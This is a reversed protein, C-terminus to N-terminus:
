IEGGAGDAGDIKALIKYKQNVINKIDEKRALVDEPFLSVPVCGKSLKDVAKELEYDNERGYICVSKAYEEGLRLWTSFKPEAEELTAAGSKSDIVLTGLATDLGHGKEVIFERDTIKSLKNQIDSPNYSHHFRGYEDFNDPTFLETAFEEDNKYFLAKVDNDTMELAKKWNLLGKKVLGEVAKGLFAEKAAVKPHRYCKLFMNVRGWILEKVSNIDTFVVRGKMFKIGTFPDIFRTEKNWTKPLEETGLADFNTYAWRDVDIAERSSVLQGFPSPDEGKVMKILKTVNM